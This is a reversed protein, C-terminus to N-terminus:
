EDEPHDRGRGSGSGSSGSGSDDVHDDQDDQDDSGSHDDDAGPPDTAPLASPVTAGTAESLIAASDASPPTSRLDEADHEVFAPWL